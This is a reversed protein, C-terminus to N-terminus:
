CPRIPRISILSAAQPTQRLRLLWNGPKDPQEASIWAAAPLNLASIAALM